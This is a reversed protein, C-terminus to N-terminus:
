ASRTERVVVHRNTVQEWRRYEGAHDYPIAERRRVAKARLGHWEADTM